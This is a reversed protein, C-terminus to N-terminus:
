VKRRVPQLIIIPDRLRQGNEDAVKLLAPVVEIANDPERGRSAAQLGWRFEFTPSQSFLWIGATAAKKMLEVLARKDDYDTYEPKKWPAFTALFTDAMQDIFQDRRGLYHADNNPDRHLYVTLM